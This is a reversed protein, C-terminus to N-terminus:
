NKRESESLGCEAKVAALAERCLGEPGTTLFTEVSAPEGDLELGDIAQLGWQLYIRDIEQGLVRAQMQEKTTEGAELFQVRQALELLRRSLEIRRGFSMRALRYVVGPALRSEVKTSTEYTM